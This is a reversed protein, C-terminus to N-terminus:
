GFTMGGDAVQTAGPNSQPSLVQSSLGPEGSSVVLCYCLSVTVSNLYANHRNAILTKLLIDLSVLSSHSRSWHIDRISLTSMLLCTCNDCGAVRSSAILIAM